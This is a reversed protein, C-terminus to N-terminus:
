NLIDITYDDLLDNVKIKKIDNPLNYFTTKSIPKIDVYFNCKPGAYMKVLNEYESENLSNKTQIQFETDMAPFTDLDIASYLPFQTDETYNYIYTSNGYLYTVTNIESFSSDHPCTYIDKRLNIDWAHNNIKIIKYPIEIETKQHFSKCYEYINLVFDLCMNLSNFAKKKINTKIQTKINQTLCLYSSTYDICQKLKNIISNRVINYIMFIHYIADLEEDM